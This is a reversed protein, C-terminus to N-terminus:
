VKERSLKNADTVLPKNRYIVLEMKHLTAAAISAEARVSPMSKM